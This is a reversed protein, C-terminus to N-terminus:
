GDYMKCATRVKVMMCVSTHSVLLGVQTLDDGVHKIVIVTAISITPYACYQASALDPSRLFYHSAQHLLFAQNGGSFATEVCFLWQHQHALACAHWLCRLKQTAIVACKM